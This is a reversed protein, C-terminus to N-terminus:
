FVATNLNCKRATDEYGLQEKLKAIQDDTMRKQLLTLFATIQKM